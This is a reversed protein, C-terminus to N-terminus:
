QGTTPYYRKLRAVHALQTKRSRRDKSLLRALVYTLDSLRDLVVFPGVYHSLLKSCLGRRRQPTWLLVLDGKQFSVEQHTSDYRQKSRSQSALTRIRAIRRAEEALCLTKAVSDETDLSFPLITDLFSRPSRAYLLYFPSYDTTEHKATNYAYTIFPLVDDWNKHDSSVYM